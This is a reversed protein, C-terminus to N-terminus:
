PKEGTIQLQSSPILTKGILEAFSEVQSKAYKYIDKYPMKREMGDALAKMVIMDASKVTSLQHIDLADRLNKYKQELLFLAQNEMKSINAYYRVANKSGQGTAYDIFREITDTVIRRTEKGAKRTELWQANQTQSSIRILESKMRYFEHGLKFKFPVTTESNRMLTILVTVQEEDLMAYEAKRGGSSKAKLFSFTRVSQFRDEYKKILKILATHEVDLGEWIDLTSVVPVGNALKVLEGM